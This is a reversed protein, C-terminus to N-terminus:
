KAGQVKFTWGNRRCLQKLEGLRKTGGGPLAMERDDDIAGGPSVPVLHLAGIPHQIVIREVSM